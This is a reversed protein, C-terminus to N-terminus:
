PLDPHRPPTEGLVQERDAVARRAERREQAQGDYTAIM